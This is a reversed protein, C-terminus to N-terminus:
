TPTLSHVLEFVTDMYPAAWELHAPRPSKKFWTYDAQIPYLTMQSFTGPHRVWVSLTKPVYAVKEPHTQRLTEVYWHGGPHKNHRGGRMAYGNSGIIPNSVAFEEQTWLLLYMWCDWIVFDVEPRAEFIPMIEQLLDPHYWDDDDSFLYIRDNTNPWHRGWLNRRPCDLKDWSQSALEKLRRRYEVYSITFKAWQTLNRILMERHINEVEYSYFMGKSATLTQVFSQPTM